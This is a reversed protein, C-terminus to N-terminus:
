STDEEWSYHHHTAGGHLSMVCALSCAPAFPPRPVCPYRVALLCSCWRTKNKTKKLHQLHSALLSPAATPESCIVRGFTCKQEQDMQPKLVRSLPPIATLTNVKASGRCARLAAISILWLGWPHVSILAHRLFTRLLNKQKKKRRCRQTTLYKLM